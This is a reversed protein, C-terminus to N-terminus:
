DGWVKEVKNLAACVGQGLQPRTFVSDSCSLSYHLRAGDKHPAQWIMLVPSVYIYNNVGFM